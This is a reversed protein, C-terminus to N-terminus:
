YLLNTQHQNYLLIKVLQSHMTLGLAKEWKLWTVACAEEKSDTLGQVTTDSKQDLSQIEEWREQRNM